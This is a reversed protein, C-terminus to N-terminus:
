HTRAMCQWRPCQWRRMQAGRAREGSAFRPMRGVLHHELEPVTPQYLEWSTMLQGIMVDIAATDPDNTGTHLATLFYPPELPQNRWFPSSGTWFAQSYDLSLCAFFIQKGTNSNM